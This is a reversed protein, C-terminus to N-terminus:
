AELPGLLSLEIKIEPFEVATVPVFRPDSSCAEVACRAVVHPLPEDAEIHGICGRLRDGNHLTVFAGGFRQAMEGANVDTADAARVHAAIADRAIQLLLRRDAECTMIRAIFGTPGNWPGCGHLRRRFIQRGVRRRFRCIEAGRCRPCWAEPRRAHRGRDTWRWM